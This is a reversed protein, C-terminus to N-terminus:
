LFFGGSLVSKPDPVQVLRAERRAKRGGIGPTLPPLALDHGVLGRLLSAHIRDPGVGTVVEFVM